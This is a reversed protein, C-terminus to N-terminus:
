LSVHQDRNDELDFERGDEERWVDMGATNDVDVDGTVLVSLGNGVLLERGQL